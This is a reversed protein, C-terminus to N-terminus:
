VQKDVKTGKHSEGGSEGTPAPPSSKEGGGQGNESSKKGTGESKGVPPVPNSTITGIGKSGAM